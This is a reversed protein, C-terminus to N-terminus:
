GAMGNAWVQLQAMTDPLVTGDRDLDVISRQLVKYGHKDGNALAHDALTEFNNIQRQNETHHQRERSMWGLLSGIAVKAHEGLDGTPDALSLTSGGRGSRRYHLRYGCCPKGDMDVFDTIHNRARAFRQNDILYGIGKQPKLMDLKRALEDQTIDVTGDHDVLFEVIKMADVHAKSTGDCHKGMPVKNHTGGSSVKANPRAM